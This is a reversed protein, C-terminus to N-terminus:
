KSPKTSQVSPRASIRAIWAAVDEPAQLEFLPLFELFPIYALDAL